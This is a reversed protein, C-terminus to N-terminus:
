QDPAWFSGRAVMLWTIHQNDYEPHRALRHLTTDDRVVGVPVGLVASMPAHDTPQVRALLAAYEARSVEVSKGFCKVMRSVTVTEKASQTLYYDARSQHAM